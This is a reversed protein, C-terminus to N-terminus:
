VWYQALAFRIDPTDRHNNKAKIILPENDGGNFCIDVVHYFPAIIDLIKHLYSLNVSFEPFGEPPYSYVPIRVMETRDKKSELRVCLENTNSDYGGHFAIKRRHRVISVREEIVNKLDELRVKLNYLKWKQLVYLFDEVELGIQSFPNFNEYVEDDLYSYFFYHVNPDISPGDTRIKMAWHGNSALAYNGVFLIGCCNDPFRKKDYISKWEQQILKQCTRIVSWEAKILSQIEKIDILIHKPIEM